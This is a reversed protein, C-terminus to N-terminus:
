CRSVILSMACLAKLRVLDNLFRRGVLASSSFPLVKEFPELLTSILGAASKDMRSDTSGKLSCSSGSTLGRVEVLRSVKVVGPVCLKSADGECM